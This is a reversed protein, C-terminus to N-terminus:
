RRANLKGELEPFILGIATASGDDNPDRLHEVRPGHM